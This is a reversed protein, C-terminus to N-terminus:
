ILCLYVEIEFSSNNLHRLLFTKDKCSNKFIKLYEKHIFIKINKSLESQTIGGINIFRLVDTSSFHEQCENNFHQWISPDSFIKSTCKMLAHPFTFSKTKTLSYKTSFENTIVKNQKIKKSGSDSNKDIKYTIKICNLCIENIKVESLNKLM